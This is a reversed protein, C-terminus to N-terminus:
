GSVVADLLEHESYSDTSQRQTRNSKSMYRNYNHVIYRTIRDCINHRLKNNYVQIKHKTIDDIDTNYNWTNFISQQQKTLTTHVSNYTLTDGILQEELEYSIDCNAYEINPKYYTALRKYEVDHWDIDNFWIHQKLEDISNYGLRQEPNNVLLQQIFDRGEISIDNYEFMVTHSHQTTFMSPLKNNGNWLEYLTCGLSYYDANYSYPLGDLIECPMYGLTGKYQITTSPLVNNAQQQTICLGLDILIIHGNSDIVINDPKLDRYIINNHHLQSLAIILEAAYQKLQLENSIRINNTLYYRLDGGYVLHTISYLYNIDQFCHLIPLIYLTQPNYQQTIYIGLNRELLIDNYLSLQNSTNNSSNLLQHKNIRKCAYM